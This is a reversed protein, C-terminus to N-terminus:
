QTIDVDFQGSTIERSSPNGTESKARFGFFGVIREETVESLTVSGSRTGNANWTEDEDQLEGEHLGEGLPYTGLTDGQLNLKVRIGISSEGEILIQNEERSVKVNNATWTIDDIFANM